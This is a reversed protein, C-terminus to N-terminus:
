LAVELVNQEVKVQGEVKAKQDGFESGKM